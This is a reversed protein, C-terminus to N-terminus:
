LDIVALDPPDENRTRHGSRRQGSNQQRPDDRRNQAPFIQFLGPSHFPQMNEM